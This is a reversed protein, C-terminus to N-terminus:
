QLFFLNINLYVKDRVNAQYSHTMVGQVALTHCNKFKDCKKLNNSKKQFVQNDWTM